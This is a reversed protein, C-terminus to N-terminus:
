KVKKSFWDIVPMTVVKGTFRSFGQTKLLKLMNMLLVEIQRLLRYFLYSTETMM